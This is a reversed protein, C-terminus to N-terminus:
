KGSSVGNMKLLNYAHQACLPSSALGTLMRLYHVFLPAPLLDGALRVFKFLAVQRPPPRYSSMSEDTTVPDLPCWYEVALELKLPDKCYLDGIQFFGCFHMNQLMCLGTGAASCEKKWTTVIFPFCHLSRKKKKVRVTPMFKLM